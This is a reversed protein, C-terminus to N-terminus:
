ARVCACCVQVEAPDIVQSQPQDRELSRQIRPSKARSSVQASDPARWRCASVTPRSAAAAPTRPMAAAAAVALFDTDVRGSAPSFQVPTVCVVCSVLMPPRTTTQLKLPLPGTRRVCAIIAGNIQGVSRVESFLRQPKTAIRNNRVDNSVHDSDVALDSDVAKLDHMTAFLPLDTPVPEIESLSQAQTDSKM